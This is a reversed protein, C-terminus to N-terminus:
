WRATGERAPMVSVFAGGRPGYVREGGSPERKEKRSGAVQTRMERQRPRMRSPAPALRPHPSLPLAPGPAARNSTAAHGQCRLVGDPHGPEPQPHDHRQPPEPPGVISDDEREGREAEEVERDV